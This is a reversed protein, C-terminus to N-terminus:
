RRLDSLHNRVKEALEQYAPGSVSIFKQYYEEAKGKEGMGELLVALNYLSAPHNPNLSLAKELMAKAKVRDNLKKYLLALNVYTDINGPNIKLAGQYYSLARDWKMLLYCNLGLNNLVRESAPDQELAQLFEDEAKLLNNEKQFIIGLNNHAEPNFANLALSSFFEEKAGSFNGQSFLEQGKEFHLRALNPSPTIVPLLPPASLDQKTKGPLPGPPEEQAKKAKKGPVPSSPKIKAQEALLKTEKDEPSLSAPRPRPHSIAIFKLSLPPLPEIPHMWIEYCFFAILVLFPLFVLVFFIRSSKKMSSPQFALPLIDWRIDSRRKEKEVQKLAKEILSM